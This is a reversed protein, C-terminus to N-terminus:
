PSFQTIEGNSIQFAFGEVLYVGEPCNGHETRALIAEKVQILDLHPNLSFNGLDCVTATPLDEAMAIVTEIADRTANVRPVRLPDFDPSFPSPFPRAFPAESAELIAAVPAGEPSVYDLLVQKGADTKPWIVYPLALINPLDKALDERGAIALAERLARDNETLQWEIEDPELTDLYPHDYFHNMPIAGHEIAWVIAEARAQRWGDEVSFVGNTYSNSYPKDGFNYFLAASFGFDPHDQSFQWLRGIGSYDTPQGDDGLSLQDGYFLDDMTLILPRRGPPVEIEGRLWAELAVLSFGAEYLAQLHADFEILPIRYKESRADPQPFFRHYMLIPAQPLSEWVTASLSVPETTATVPSHTHTPAPNPTLTINPEVKDGYGDPELGPLSLAPQCGSLLTCAILILIIWKKRQMPVIKGNKLLLPLPQRKVTPTCPNEVLTSDRGADPETVRQRLHM